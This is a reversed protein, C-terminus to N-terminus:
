WSLITYAGGCPHGPDPDAHETWEYGDDQYYKRVAKNEETKLYFSFGEKADGVQPNYISCKGLQAAKRIRINIYNCFKDIVPGKLSDETIERAESAKM